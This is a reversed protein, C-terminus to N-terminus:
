LVLLHKIRKLPQTHHSVWCVCIINILGMITTTEIRHPVLPPLLTLAPTYSATLM